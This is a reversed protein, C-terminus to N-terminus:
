GQGRPVQAAAYPTGAFQVTFKTDAPSGTGTWCAVNVAEDAGSQAWGAAQCSDGTSGHATVQVYGGPDAAAAFIVQYTGTGQRTITVGPTGTRLEDESYAAPPRYSSAMGRDAFAYGEQVNNVGLYDNVDSFNTDSKSDVPVGGPGTCAINFVEGKSTGAWSVIRCTAAANGWATVSATGGNVDLGPFLIRYHGTSVHTAVPGTTTFSAYWDDADPFHEHATLSDIKVYAVTPAPASAGPLGTYAADFEEDAPTGAPSFCAVQVQQGATNKAWTVVECVAATQGVATVSVSGGHFQFGAFDVTYTGTGTRQITNTLGMSNYQLTGPPTYSAMAPQNDIVWGTVSSTSPAGDAWAVGATSGTIAAAAVTLGGLWGARSRLTRM